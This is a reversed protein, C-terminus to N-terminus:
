GARVFNGGEGGGGITEPSPVPSVTSPPPPSRDLTFYESEGPSTLHWCRLLLTSVAIMGKINTPVPLALSPADFLVGINTRDGSRAETGKHSTNEKERLHLPPPAASTEGRMSIDNSFIHKTIM